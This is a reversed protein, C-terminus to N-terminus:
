RQEDCREVQAGSVRPSSVVIRGVHVRGRAPVTGLSGRFHGESSEGRATKMGSPFVKPFMLTPLRRAAIITGTRADHVM